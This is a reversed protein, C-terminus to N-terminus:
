LTAITRDRDPAMVQEDRYSSIELVRFSSRPMRDGASPVKLVSNLVSTELDCVYIIIRVILLDHKM